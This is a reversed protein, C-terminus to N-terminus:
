FMGLIDLIQEKTKREPVLNVQLDEATTASEMGLYYNDEGLATISVFTVMQNIPTMSVGTCFTGSGDNETLEIVSDYLDFIMFVKTNTGLDDFTTPMKICVGTKDLNNLDSVIANSIWGLNSVEFEYGFDSWNEGTLPNETNWNGDEVINEFDRIWTFNSGVLAGTYLQAESSATADSLFLGIKKSDILAIAEGDQSAELYFIRENELLESDTVTPKSYLAILSKDIIEIYEIDVIGIVKEGNAYEFASEPVHIISNNGTAIYQATNSNFTYSEEFTQVTQLFENIAGDKANPEFSDIDKGCSVVLTILAFSALLKLIHKM